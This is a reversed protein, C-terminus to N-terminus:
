RGLEELYKEVELAAMCGTGAAIQDRIRDLNTAISM